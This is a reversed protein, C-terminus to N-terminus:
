HSFIIVSFYRWHYHMNLRLFRYTGPFPNVLFGILPIKRHYAYILGEVAVLFYTLATVCGVIYVKLSKTAFALWTFIIYLVVWTAIFINLIM